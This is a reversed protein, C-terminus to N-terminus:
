PKLAFGVEAVRSLVWLRINATDLPQDELTLLHDKQAELM